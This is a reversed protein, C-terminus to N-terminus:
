DPRLRHVHVGYDSVVSGRHQDYCDVELLADPRRWVVQAEAGVVDLGLLYVRHIGEPTLPLLCVDSCGPDRLIPLFGYPVGHVVSHDEGVQDVLHLGRARVAYGYSPGVPRVRRDTHIYVCCSRGLLPSRQLTM